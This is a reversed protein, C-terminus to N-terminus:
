KWAALLQDLKAEIRDLQSNGGWNPLSAVTVVGDEEDLMQRVKGTIYRMALDKDFMYRTKGNGAPSSTHPVGAAILEDRIKGDAAPVGRERLEVVVAYTSMTESKPKVPVSASVMHKIYNAVTLADYFRYIRKGMPIELETAGMDLLAKAIINSEPAAVGAARLQESVQFLSIQKTSKM